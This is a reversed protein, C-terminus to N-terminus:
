KNYDIVEKAVAPRVDEIEQIVQKKFNNNTNTKNTITLNNGFKSNNVVPNNTKGGMVRKSEVQLQEFENNEFSPKFPKRYNGNVNSNQAMGQNGFNNSSGGSMNRNIENQSSMGGGFKMKLLKVSEKAENMEKEDFKYKNNNMGVNTNRMNFNSNTNQNINRNVFNDGGM